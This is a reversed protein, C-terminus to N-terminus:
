KTARARVAACDLVVLGVAIRYTNPVSASGPAAFRAASPTTTTTTTASAMAMAAIAAAGM